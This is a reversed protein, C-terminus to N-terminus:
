QEPPAGLRDNYKKLADDLAERLVSAENRGLVKALRALRELQTATYHSTKTVMRSDALPLAVKNRGTSKALFLAEDAARVLEAEDEGHAPFGALGASCTVRLEPLGEVSLAVIRRRAEELLTFADDLRTGPLAGGLEDGGYRTLVAAQPLADRLAGVVGSLVRDGAERGHARNVTLFDDVDLLFLSLPEGDERARPLLEERLLHRFYPASLLGTLSDTTPLEFTAPFTPVAPRRTSLALLICIYREICIV